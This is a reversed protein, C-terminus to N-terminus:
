FLSYGLVSYASCLKGNTNCVSNCSWHCDLKSPSAKIGTVIDTYVNANQLYVTVFKLLELMIIIGQITICYIVKSATVTKSETLTHVSKIITFLVVM